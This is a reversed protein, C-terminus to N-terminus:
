ANVAEAKAATMARLVSVDFRVRGSDPELDLHDALHQVVDWVMVRVGSVTRGALEVKAAAPYDASRRWPTATLAPDTLSDHWAILAAAEVPEGQHDRSSIQLAYGVTRAINVTTLNPHAHLHAGLATLLDALETAPTTQNNM